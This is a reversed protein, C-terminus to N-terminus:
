MLFGPTKGQTLRAWSGWTPFGSKLFVEPAYADFFYWWEFLRWPHYVPTSLLEFWPLGLRLQYGLQAATWQTAGWTGGIVLAFVALIQGFLVTTGQM